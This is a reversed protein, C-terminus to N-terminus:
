LFPPAIRQPIALVGMGGALPAPHLGAVGVGVARLGRRDAPRSEFREARIPSHRPAAQFLAPGCAPAGASGGPQQSAVEGPTSCIPAASAISRSREFGTASDRTVRSAERLLHSPRPYDTGYLDAAYEVSYPPDILVGAFAGDRFPLRRGDARVDPCAAARLDLRIGGAVESSSLAGSCVHLVERPPVGLVRIAWTVFGVPYAGWVPAPAFDVAEAAAWLVARGPQNGNRRRYGEGPLGKGAGRKDLPTHLVEADDEM